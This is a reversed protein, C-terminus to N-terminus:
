IMPCVDAAFQAQTLNSNQAQGTMFLRGAEGAASQLTAQAFLFLTTELIAILTALFAPAILAFEVATAGKRAACFRSVDRRFFKALNRLMDLTGKCFRGVRSQIQVTREYNLCM